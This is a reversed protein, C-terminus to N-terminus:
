EETITGLWYYLYPYQTDPSIRNFTIEANGAPTYNYKVPNSGSQGAESLTGAGTLTVRASKIKNYGVALVVSGGVPIHLTGSAYKTGGYQAYAGHSETSGGSITLIYETPAFSIARATGDVLAKGQKKDYGTGDILDRGGKIKYATGGIITKHAM